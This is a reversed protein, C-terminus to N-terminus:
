PQEAETKAEAERLTCAATEVGDGWSSQSFPPERGSNTEQPLSTVLGSGAHPVSRPM